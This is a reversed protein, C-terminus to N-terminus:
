ANIQAGGVGAHGDHFAALRHDDGVGFPLARGRRHHGEGLATFPQDAHDAGAIVGSGHSLAISQGVRYGLARAIEAGIVAHHLTDLTGEFARGDALALAQRAGYRFRTFYDTTTALVPFGRHTDGLALPVIWAVARHKELERLSDLRISGTAGGIRFVANLMLPLAGGRAGVVLDTGSVSQAFGSRVGSRLQEVGLLLMVSLAISIVMLMLTGKRNWASHFALLFLTKM